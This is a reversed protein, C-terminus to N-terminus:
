IDKYYCFFYISCNHYNDMKNEKNEAHICIGCLFAATGDDSCFHQKFISTYFLTRRNQNECEIEKKLYEQYQKKMNVRFMKEWLLIFAPLIIAIGFVVVETIMCSKDRNLLYGLTYHKDFGLLILATGAFTQLMFIYYIYSIVNVKGPNLTGAAKSFLITSIGFIVLILLIELIYGEIM